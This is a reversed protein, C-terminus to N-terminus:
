PLLLQNLSFHVSDSHYVYPVEKMKVSKSLKAYRREYLLNSVVTKFVKPSMERGERLEYLNM